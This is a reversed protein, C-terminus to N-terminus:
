QNASKKLGEEIRKLIGADTPQLELARKFQARANERDNMKLYVRGLHEIIEADEAQLTPILSIARQLEKVAKAYEGKKFHWWGLSDVFAANDPHLENAKLILEGAKDLHRELELWMYGLYNMTNAAAQADEAPTLNISKEFIRGAEDHKGGRELTVGYQFYFRYNSLEGSGIEALRDAQAFSEISEDWRELSRYALAAHVYFTAQDPFLKICRRCLQILKEYQGARLMLEGLYLYDDGEGGGIQIAAELHTIAGAHNERAEYAAALMRHQEVDGPDAKVIAILQELAKDKDDFADYLRHLLKRAQINGSQAVIRACLDRALELQNSLLYYQAVELQVPENKVGPALSLAKTYFANVRPVHEERMETQALPWVQQAARGLTLWFSSQSVQQRLAKDMVAIAEKRAGQSLYTVAAFGYVEAKKPFKQLATDLTQRARDNEFPDDPAYTACFRALNLYAAPDNPSAAVAKQLIDVAVPRGRFSYALEATHMALDPNAPDVELAALYHDLAERLKGSNEFQLASTYHALAQAVLAGDSQLHLAPPSTLPPFSLDAQEPPQTGAGHLPVILGLLCFQLRRCRASM